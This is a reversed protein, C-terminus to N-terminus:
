RRGPRRLEGQWCAGTDAIVRLTAAGAAPRLKRVDFARGTAVVKLDIGGSETRGLVLKRVGDPRGRRGRYVTTQSGKRRWCPPRDCAGESPVRAEAIVRRRQREQPFV